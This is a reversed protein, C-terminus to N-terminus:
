SLSLYIIILVVVLTIINLIYLDSLLSELSSTDGAELPSNIFENNPSPAEGTYSKKNHNSNLYYEPEVLHYPFARYEARNIYEM